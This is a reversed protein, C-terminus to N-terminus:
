RRAGTVIVGAVGPPRLGARYRSTGGNRGRRCGRRFPHPPYGGGLACSVCASAAFGRVRVKEALAVCPRIVFVRVSIRCCCNKASAAVRIFFGLDTFQRINSVPSRRHGRNCVRRLDGLYDRYEREACAGSVISLFAGTGLRRWSFARDTRCDVMSCMIPFGAVAPSLLFAPGRHLGVFRGSGVGQVSCEPRVLVPSVRRWRRAPNRRKPRDGGAGARLPSCRRRKRAPEQVEVSPLQCPSASALASAAGRAAKSSEATACGARVLLPLRRRWQARPESAGAPACRARAPPPSRRDRRGAPNRPNSRARAPTLRAGVACGPACPAPPCHAIASAAAGSPCWCGCWALWVSHRLPPM